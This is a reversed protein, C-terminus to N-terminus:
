KKILELMKDAARQISDCILEMAAVDTGKYDWVVHWLLAFANHLHKFFM